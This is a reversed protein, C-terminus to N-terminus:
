IQLLYKGDRPPFTKEGGIWVYEDPDAEVYRGEALPLGVPSAGLIDSVFRFRTGDWAYLYPCSTDQIQLEGITLLSRPDVKVDVTTPNLSLWRTTLSDLQKHQGVGIEVPLTMIRRVLRLGGAAVEVRIGIGSANSRTGVLQLKLQQNANGGENRLLQLSGDQLTLLLDSDGDNDFDAA